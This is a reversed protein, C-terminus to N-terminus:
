YSVVKKPRIQFAKKRNLPMNTLLFNLHHISIKYHSALIIQIFRRMTMQSSCKISTKSSRWNLTQNETLFYNSCPNQRTYNRSM